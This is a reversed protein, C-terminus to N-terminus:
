RQDKFDDLTTRLAAAARALQRHVSGRTVGLQDAIQVESLDLYYRLVVVQRQRCPLTRLATLVVHGQEVADTGPGADEPEGPPPLGVRGGHQRSRLSKRAHNIVASRLYPLTAEPDRINPWRSFTAVFADQVVDEATAQDDVLLRAL